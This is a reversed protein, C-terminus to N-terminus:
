HAQDGTRPAGSREYTAPGNLKAFVPLAVPPDNGTQYRRWDAINMTDLNIFFDAYADRRVHEAAEEHGM